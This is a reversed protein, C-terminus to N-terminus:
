AGHKKLRIKLADVAAIRVSRFVSHREMASLTSEDPSALTQGHEGYVLPSACYLCVMWDGEEPTVPAKPSDSVQTSGALLAGCEPCQPAATQSSTAFFLETM